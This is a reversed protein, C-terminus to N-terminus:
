MYERSPIGIKRPIRTETYSQKHLHLLYLFWDHSFPSGQTAHFSLTVSYAVLTLIVKPDWEPTNMEQM